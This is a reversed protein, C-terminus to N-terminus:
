LDFAFECLLTRQEMHLADSRWYFARFNLMQQRKGHYM